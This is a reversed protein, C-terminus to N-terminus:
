RSAPGGRQAGHVGARIRWHRSCPSPVGHGGFQRSKGCAFRDLPQPCALNRRELHDVGRQRADIRHVALDVREGRKAGIAGTVMGPADHRVARGPVARLRPKATQRDRDLVEDVDGAHTRGLARRDIGIMHRLAGIHQDLGQLRPAGDDDGLRVRRLEAGAGVGEVLHEALRAVRPVPRLARTPRRPARRHRQRRTLHPEGGTGIEAARQAIRRAEARDHTQARAGAPHGPARAGMGEPPEADLARHRAVDGVQCQHEVRLDAMMRHVRDGYRSRRRRERRRKFSRHHGLAHREAAIEADHRYRRLDPVDAGGGRLPELIEAGIDDFGARVQMVGDVYEPDQSRRLENGVVRRKQLIM